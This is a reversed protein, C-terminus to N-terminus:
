RHRPAGWHRERPMGMGAAGGFLTVDPLSVLLSLEGTAEPPQHVELGVRWGEFSVEAEV